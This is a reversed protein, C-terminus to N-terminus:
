PHRPLRSTVNQNRLDQGFTARYAAPSTGLARAFHQRLSAGTGFGARRAVADVPLESRELLDRARLLRQQLLWAGPSVGVERRFRRTFTRTSMSAHRALDDLSLTEDLHELAWSRAPGTHGGTPAPVPVDVFQAQGGDRFPPVVTRRAVDNAVAAGHDSRILHLCLDIGAAEGASTFVRGDETFLVDPDLEVAPFERRFREASLWHTTARRGDLLGARALAFAGTCISAVRAEPRVTSLLGAVDGGAAVTDTGTGTDDLAHSAPVVVTDARALVQPGHPVDISFDADTRVPGPVAACTRVDYLREGDSGRAVGFLQHVAGLELPMVGDRVLVAVLHRRRVAAGSARKRGAPM